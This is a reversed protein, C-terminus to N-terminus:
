GRRIVDDWRVEYHPMLVAELEDDVDDEPLTIMHSPLSDNIPPQVPPPPHPAPRRVHAHRTCLLSLCPAARRRM